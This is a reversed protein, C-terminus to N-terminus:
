VKLEQDFSNSKKRNEKAPIIAMNWPVHLGLVNRGLLPVIHDVEHPIGTLKSIQKCKLYIKLTDKHFVRGLSAYKERKRRANKQVQKNLKGNDTAEYRKIRARQAEPNKRNREVCEKVLREKNEFYYERKYDANDDKHESRYKKQYELIKDRNSLSYEKVQALRKEKNKQYDDRMKQKRSEASKQYRDKANQKAQEPDKYPM